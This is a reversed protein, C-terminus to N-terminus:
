PEDHSSTRIRQQLADYHHHNNVRQAVCLSPDYHSCLSLQGRNGGGTLDLCTLRKVAIHPLLINNNKKSSSLLIYSSSYRDEIEEVVVKDPNFTDDHIM